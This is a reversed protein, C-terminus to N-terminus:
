RRCTPSTFGALGATTDATVFAVPVPGDVIRAPIQVIRTAADPLARGLRWWDLPTMAPDARTHAGVAYLVRNATLPNATAAAAVQALVEHLHDQRSSAAWPAARWAGDVEVQPHRSRVWALATSGDLRHTGASGIWLDARRDRVPAPTTVSVGGVADVLDIVATFDVIVIHDVGVGLDRCLSDTLEAPGGMLATTLRRPTGREAGVFLDRPVGVLRARGQGVRLLLIVDAREGNQQAPDRYRRGAHATDFATRSDSGVLLFTEGGAASGPLTVPVRQIRHLGWAVDAAAVTVVAVVVALAM